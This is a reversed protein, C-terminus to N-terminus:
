EVTRNPSGFGTGDQPRPALESGDALGLKRQSGQASGAPTTLGDGTNVHLKQRSQTQLKSQSQIKTSTATRTQLGKGGGGGAGAGKGAFAYGGLALTCAAALVIVKVLQKKMIFGGHQNPKRNIRALWLLGCVTGVPFIVV